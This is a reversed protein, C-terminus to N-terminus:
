APETLMRQFGLANVIGAPSATNNFYVFANNLNLTDLHHMVRQLYADSYESYFLRPNGHLRLYVTPMTAIIDTPLGPYNVSCFIMKHQRLAQFVAETWWSAHRFEIANSFRIDVSATILELREPSYQFSPPLQFLVCALKDKLGTECAAYFEILEKECEIFKKTHTILKPAKISYKFGDPSKRYWSM